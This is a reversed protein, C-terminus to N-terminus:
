NFKLFRRIFSSIDDSFSFRYIVMLYLIGIIGSKLIINVIPHFGFEWFYFIAIFALLVLAVAITKKSFPHMHFKKFVFGIKLTNYILFSVLSAMAAGDMGYIPILILNLIVTIFILLVGLMLVTKYYNSNFIIANNNGLLTDSLKALSILLVVNLALGYGPELIEYLQKINLIILLFIGGGIIFLSLSSRKYLDKLNKWDKSNMLNATIPYTIQHMAKSPVTIVMAIFVGVGYFAINKISLYNNLMVKDIELLLNAVSGALIILSSYSLVQKFNTPLSFSFSPKKISFANILMVFMRLVYMVVLAIIFNEQNLWGLYLAILLLMSAVRHFVEKLFNGFVTKLHVRAWSFFLEFYAMAIATIYILWVYNGVLANKGSLFTVIPEYAMVVFAGVPIIFFLPLIFMLGTFRSQQESNQYSSFFKVMSNHVGFALVPMLINAASLIFVVLGYYDDSMFKTYLFVTNIAGFFFGLYTTIVNKYSQNVVIGM